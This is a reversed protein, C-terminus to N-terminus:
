KQCGKSEQNPASSERGFDPVENRDDPWFWAPSTASVAGLLRSFSYWERRRRLVPLSRGCCRACDSLCFSCHPAGQTGRRGM